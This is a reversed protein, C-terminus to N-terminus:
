IANDCITEFAEKSIKPFAELDFITCPKKLQYEYIAALLVIDGVQEIRRLINTRLNVKLKIDSM